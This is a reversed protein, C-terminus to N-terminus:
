SRSRPLQRLVAWAPVVGILTTAVFLWAAGATAWVTTPDARYGMWQDVAVGLGEIV